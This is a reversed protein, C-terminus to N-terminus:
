HGTRHSKALRVGEIVLPLFWTARRIWRRAAFPAVMALMTVIIGMSTRHRRARRVGSVITEAIGMRGRIGGFASALAARDQDSSAVLVDRRRALDAIYSSV